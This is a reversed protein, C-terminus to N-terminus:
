FRSGGSNRKELKTLREEFADIKDSLANISDEIGSLDVEPIDIKKNKLKELEQKIYTLDAALPTLTNALSKIEAFTQKFDELEVNGKIYPTGMSGSMYITSNDFVGGFLLGVYAVLNCITRAYPM